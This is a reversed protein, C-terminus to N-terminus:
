SNIRVVRIHKKMFEDRAQVKALRAAVEIDTIYRTRAIRLMSLLCRIIISLCVIIISAIIGYIIM